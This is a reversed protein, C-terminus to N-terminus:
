VLDTKVVNKLEPTTGQVLDLGPGDKGLGAVGKLVVEEADVAPPPPAFVVPTTTMARGGGGQVSVLVAAQHDAGPLEEAGAGSFDEQPQVLRGGGGGVSM